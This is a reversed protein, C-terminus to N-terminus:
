KDPKSKRRIILIDRIDDCVEQEDCDDCDLDTCEYEGDRVLVLKKNKGAIIRAEAAITKFSNVDDASSTVFVIEAAKVIKTDEMYAAILAQGLRRFDMGQSIAQHSIRAWLRGPVLRVMYGPLRNSLYQNSELSFPNIQADQEIALMVIQAYDLKQGVADPLDPGLVHIMGADILEQNYTWLVTNLSASSPHGLEVATEDGPVITAPGQGRSALGVQQMFAQREAESFDGTHRRHIRSAQTDLLYHIKGIQRDFVIQEPSTQDAINTKTEM